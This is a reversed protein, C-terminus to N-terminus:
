TTLSFCIRLCLWPRGACHLDQSHQVLFAIELTEFIELILCKGPAVDRSDSQPDLLADGPELYNEEVRLCGWFSSFSLFDRIKLGSLISIGESHSKSSSM